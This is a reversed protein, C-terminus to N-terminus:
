RGARRLADDLTQVRFGPLRQGLRLHVVNEVLEAGDAVRHRGVLEPLEDRALHRAVTLDDLRGADGRLLLRAGALAPHSRTSDDDREVEKNSCSRKRFRYGSKPIM